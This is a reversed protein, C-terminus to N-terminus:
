SSRINRYGYTDLNPLSWKNGLVFAGTMERKRELDIFIAVGTYQYFIVWDSLHKWVKTM